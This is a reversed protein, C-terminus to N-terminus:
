NQFNSLVVKAVVPSIGQKVLEEVTTIGQNVLNMAKFMEVAGKEMGKEMGKEEAEAFEEAFIEQIVPAMAADEKWKKLQEQNAKSVVEVVAEANRRDENGKLVNVKLMLETYDERTINKTLSTLWLHEEKDIAGTVIIQTAFLVNGEVYYIGKYAERVTCGEQKLYKILTDPYQERVLSITIDKAEYENEHAAEVKYLCAYAVTKYYADVGLEDGPSKYEMINYKQFIHGINNRTKQLSEKKIVLLDMKLPKKSLEHESDYNLQKRNERLELQIAAVFGSHWQTKTQEKEM